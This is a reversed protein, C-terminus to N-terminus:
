HAYVYINLHFLVNFLVTNCLMVCLVAINRLLTYIYIIHILSTFLASGLSPKQHRASVKMKAFFVLGPRASVRALRARASNLIKCYM